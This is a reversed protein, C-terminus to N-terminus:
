SMYLGWLLSALISFEQPLTKSFYILLIFGEEIDGMEPIINQAPYTQHLALPFDDQTDM